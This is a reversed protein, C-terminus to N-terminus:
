SGNGRVWQTSRNWLEESFQRAKGVAQRQRDISKKVVPFEKLLTGELTEGNCQDGM